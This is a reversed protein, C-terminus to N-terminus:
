PSPASCASYPTVAGFARLRRGAFIGHPAPKRAGGYGGGGNGGGNGAARGGYRCAAACAIMSPHARAPAACMWLREAFRVRM